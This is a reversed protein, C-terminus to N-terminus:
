KATVEKKKRPSVYSAKSRLYLTNMYDSWYTYLMEDDLSIGYKNTEKFYKSKKCDRFFQDRRDNDICVKNIKDKNEKRYCIKIVHAENDRFLASTGSVNSKYVRSVDQFNKMCKQHETAIDKWMMDLEDGYKCVAELSKDPNMKWEGVKLLRNLDDNDIHLLTFSEIENWEKYYIKIIGGTLKKAIM